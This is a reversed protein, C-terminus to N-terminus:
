AKARARYEAPTMQQQQRFARNFSRITGFGVEESIDAIKKDTNSLLRCAADVRLANIYENFGMNLSRSIIHSIYYKSFHLDESLNELLLKENFHDTCYQLITRLAANDGSHTPVLTLQPIVSCMLLNIYGNLATMGCVNKLEEDGVRRIEALLPRAPDDKAIHIMNEAPINSKLLRELGPFLETSVVLVNFSGDEIMEYYHIQNPFAVFFDGPELVYCNDDAYAVCSGRVDYTIEIEKHMHPIMSLRGDNHYEIPETKKEVMVDLRNM